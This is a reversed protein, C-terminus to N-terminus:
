TRPRRVSCRLSSSTEVRLASRVAVITGPKMFLSPRLYQGACVCHIGFGRQMHLLRDQLSTGAVEEATLVLLSQGPADVLCECEQDARTLDAVIDMEQRLLAELLVCGEVFVHRAEGPVSARRLGQAATEPATQAAQRRLALQEVYAGARAVHQRLVFDSHEQDSAAELEMGAAAGAVADVVPAPGRHVGGCACISRVLSALCGRHAGCCSCSCREQCVTAAITVLPAPSVFVASPVIYAVFPATAAYSLAHVPVVTM